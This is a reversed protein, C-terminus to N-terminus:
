SASDQNHHNQLLTFVSHKEVNSRGDHRDKITIIFFIAASDNFILIFHSGKCRLCAVSSLIHFKLCDLCSLFSQYGAACAHIADANPTCANCLHQPPFQVHVNGFAFNYCISHVNENRMGDSSTISKEFSYSVAAATSSHGSGLAYPLSVTMALSRSSSMCSLRMSALTLMLSLLYRKMQKCM